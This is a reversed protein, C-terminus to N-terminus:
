GHEFLDLGICDMFSFLDIISQIAEMDLKARRIRVEMFSCSSRVQPWSTVELDGDHQVSSPISGVGNEQSPLM